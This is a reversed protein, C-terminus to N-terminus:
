RPMVTLSRINNVLTDLAQATATDTINGAADIKARIFPILLSTEASVVASMTRLTEILSAHAHEGQAAATIVAAPKDIWADTAVTWDLANKLVGPVGHAYEPSCFVVLASGNIEAILDAAAGPPPEAGDFPPISGMQGFIHFDAVSALREGIYNLLLTSSAQPRISGPIGLIRIRDM